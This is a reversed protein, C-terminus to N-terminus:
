NQWFESSRSLLHGSSFNSLSSGHGAADVAGGVSGVGEDNKVTDAIKRLVGLLFTGTGTAPDALTRDPAALGAHLTSATRECCMTWSASWRVSVQPPTYYSGTQKRL